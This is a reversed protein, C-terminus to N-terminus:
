PGTLTVPVTKTDLLTSGQRLELRFRAAGAVLTGTGLGSNQAGVTFSVVCSGPPMEGNTATCTLVVGGAPRSTAPDQDIFEQVVVGTLTAGTPNYVVATYTSRPGNIQLSPATVSISVISPTNAVLTIPITKTDLITEVTGDRHILELEFTASGSVLTGTGASPGNNADIVSSQLCEGNPLTGGLSGCTVNTGGAARRATGQRIWGQILVTSRPVGPNYITATFDTSTNPKDLVVYSSAPNISVIAPTPLVLDVNIIKQDYEVPPAGAASKYLHLVFRAPGAEFAGGSTSSSATVTFPISCTGTGTTPLVGLGNGCNIFTGGAGKSVTGGTQDQDLEGQLLVDTVPFGPNQLRATYDVSAGGIVLTTSQLAVSVIKPSSSVLTIAITKTDFTTSTGGSTQILQLEFIAAGPALTGNGSGSMSAAASFTITCTGPPFVGVGSGCNVQTGGAARRVPGLDQLISGQLLVGQLSNAPNQLTATYSTAPGDIALTTSALSLTTIRPTAVLNVLISKTALETETANITQIVRLVLTASGAVLTGNGPTANSAKANFTVDCNGTQLKGVDAPSGACVIPANAAERTAAGQTIVAQISVGSPIAPGSNGISADGTVAPGDIRLTNASLQFTKVKVKGNVGAAFVATTPPNAATPAPRETCAVTATLLGATILRATTRPASM